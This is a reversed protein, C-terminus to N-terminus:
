RTRAAPADIGPPPALPERLGAIVGKAKAWVARQNGKPLERLFALPLAAGMFLFFTLWDLPRGYRRVFLAASRGSGFTRKPVYSGVTHSVM